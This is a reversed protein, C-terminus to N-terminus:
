TLRSIAGLWELYPRTIPEHGLYDRLTKMEFQSGGVRLVMDRYRRGAEQSMTDQQFGTEFIDFALVTGLLYSYYGADYGNIVNRFVTQGHGWEWGEGLAEGGHAGSINSRTKNFLETLNMTQLEERSAPSHILMDYTAFFLNNLQSRVNGTKNRQALAAAQNDDLQVPPTKLSSEEASKGLTAKWASMMSPSIYSYHYSLDKIHRELWFFQELMKSPAEVFDRDVPCLGAFKTRTLLAHFLHGLEHFLKRVDDLSLLTPQNPLPRVYNMVLVSSPYFRSGDSRQYGFQLPYHGAHSHKGDRPFLDLYAYGLFEEAENEVNWVTYMQVDEHWLLGETNETDVRRVEAGFLHQFMQFLKELTKQLEFYESVASERTQAREMRRETFFPVDWHFLKDANEVFVGVEQQKLELLEETDSMALPAVAERIESLLKAVVDPTQVIKDSTKRAFHTPYGLMRATEDRLLVIERFLPLNGAMRNEVAYYIKKRTSERKVHKMAPASFPTKTPLWLRGAQSGEGKKLRSFIANPLGKLEEPTLWLGATEEILNKNCERELHNLRKTKVTFENRLADDTIGCGNQLFRRHLKQLYYRSEDDQAFERNTAKTVVSDVLLFMDRRSFLEVEADNLMKSVENSANRVEKVPHTSACFRLLRQREFKANEDQILPWITNEFSAHAIQVSAVVSNWTSTTTSIIELANEELAQPTSDFIPPKQTAFLDTTTKM